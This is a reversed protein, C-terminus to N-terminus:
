APSKLRKFFVTFVSAVCTRLAMCCIPVLALARTDAASSSLLTLWCILALASSVAVWALTTEAAGFLNGGVHL